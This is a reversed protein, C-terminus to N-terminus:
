FVLKTEYRPFRKSDLSIGPRACISLCSLKFQFMNDLFRGGCTTLCATSRIYLWGSKYVVAGLIRPAQHVHLYKDFHVKHVKYITNSSLSRM